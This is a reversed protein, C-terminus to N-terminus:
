DMEEDPAPLNLIEKATDDLRVIEMNRKIQAAIVTLDDIRAAKQAVDDHEASADPKTKMPPLYRVEITVNEAMQRAMFKLSATVETKLENARGADEPLNQDVIEEGLKRTEADLKAESEAVVTNIAEASVGVGVLQSVLKKTEILKQLLENLRSVALSVSLYVGAAASLYFQWDTSSITKVAIPNHEPDSLEVFPRLAKDWAKTIKALDSLLRQGKPEPISIGIEGEGPGINEYEVSLNTFASDVASIEKYFNSVETQLARLAAAALQPTMGNESLINEIQEFLKNGIYKRAGISDLIAVLTPFPTNLTSKTLQNRLANLQEKFIVSYGPDGPNAALAELQQIVNQLKTYIEGHTYDRNLAYIAYHFKGLHM